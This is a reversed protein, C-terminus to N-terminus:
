RGTRPPQSNALRRIRAIASQSLSHCTTYYGAVSDYVRVTGGPDVMCRIAEIGRGSFAKARCEIVKDITTMTMGRKAGEANRRAQDQGEM